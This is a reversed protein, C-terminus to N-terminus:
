KKKDKKKDKGDGLQSEESPTTVYFSGIYLDQAFACFAMMSIIIFTLSRKM